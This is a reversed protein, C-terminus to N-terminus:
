MKLDSKCLEDVLENYNTIGRSLPIGKNALANALETIRPLKLGIEGLKEVESFIVKPTDDAIVRGENMVIIRNARAAEGMDHTIHIIGLSHHKNLEEITKLIENKGEKDLMSTAEDLIIYQPKMALVAAIALRQKQGGSLDAPSKHQFDELGVIKLTTSIISKIEDTPIGLNEPGFAIEEEASSAILQNEPNQFVMGVKSRVNWRYERTDMGDVYIRGQSPLLLSNILKALTSKGSGNPGVIAAYEGQIFDLSVNNIVPKSNSSYSFFVGELKIM